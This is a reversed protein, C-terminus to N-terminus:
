TTVYLCCLHQHSKPQHHQLDPWKERFRKFILIEPGTSPGLCVRFSDSLLIESMHHRCAMWLLDRGIARELLTCAGNKQGTNAATTDFRMGIVLSDCQGLKLLELVAEGAAQGSGSALKPVGLLKTSGDILSSILVPLRDVHNTDVSTIDPLLKNDWHVVSKSAQFENKIQKAAERRVHM